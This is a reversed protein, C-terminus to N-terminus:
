FQLKKITDCTQLIVTSHQVKLSQGSGDQARLVSKGDRAPGTEERHQESLEQLRDQLCGPDKGASDAETTCFVNYKTLETLVSVKEVSM